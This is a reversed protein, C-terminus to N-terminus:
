QPMAPLSVPAASLNERWLVFLGSAIIIAVGLFTLTDPFDHFVLWGLITATVIEFYGLPALVAAPAWTFAYSIFVHAITAALGTGLLYLTFRPDPTIPDLVAHGSGNMLWLIPLIYILAALGSYAQLTVPHGRNAMQRTLIVYFAFCFATGIPMAAIWGFDTFSPKIVLMAGLFGILCALIRRWGITEGLILSSLLTLIFPEVFFIAIADAVPMYKVAGFFLLTATLVLAGRLLHLATETKDPRHLQGLLAALPLLLASQVLFRAASVQAVPIEAAALKAFVDIVPGFAAFGFMMLIGNLPTPKMVGANRM